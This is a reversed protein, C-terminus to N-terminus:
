GDCIEYGEPTTEPNNDNCDTNSIYGEPQECAAIFAVTPDNTGFGDGDNDPYWYADILM